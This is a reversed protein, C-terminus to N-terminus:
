GQILRSQVDRFVSLFINNDSIVKLFYQGLNATDNRQIVAHVSQQFAQMPDLTQFNDGLLIITAHRRQNVPMFQLNKLSTNEAVSGGGFNEEIVVVQYPIQSFQSFFEAHTSVMHVKYDLEALIERAANQLAPDNIALLSPKDNASLFEYDPM